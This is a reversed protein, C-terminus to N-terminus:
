EALLSVEWCVLDLAVIVARDDPNLGEDILAAREVADM